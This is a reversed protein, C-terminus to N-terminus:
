TAPAGAVPQAFPLRPGALNPLAAQIAALEAALQQTAQDNGQEQLFVASDELANRVRELLEIGSSVSAPVAAEATADALAPRAVPAADLTASLAAVRERLQDDECRREM